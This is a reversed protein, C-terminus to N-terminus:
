NSVNKKVIVNTWSVDDRGPLSDVTTWLDVSELSEIERLLVKVGEESYDTYHRMGDQREGSGYKWSMYAVGNLKLSNAIKQIALRMKNEEVHLLSACAWVGNFREVFPIEEARFEYVPVNAIERTKRCMAPSPDVATVEYGNESFYRSDRGSGSGLDLISDGVNLWKEFRAYIVSMDADLTLEVFKEAHEEYYEITTDRESM